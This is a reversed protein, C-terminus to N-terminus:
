IYKDRNINQVIYDLYLSKDAKASSWARRGFDYAQTGFCKPACTRLAPAKGLQLLEKEEKNSDELQEYIKGKNGWSKEHAHSCSTFGGPWRLCDKGEANGKKYDKSDEINRIYEM